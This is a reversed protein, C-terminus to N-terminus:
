QGACKSTLITKLYLALEILDGVLDPRPGLCDRKATRAMADALREDSSRAGFQLETGANDALRRIMPKAHAMAAPM